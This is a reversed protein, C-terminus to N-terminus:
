VHARGIMNPLRHHRKLYDNDKIFLFDHGLIARWEEDKLILNTRQLMLLSQQSHTSKDGEDNYSYHLGRKLQWADTNKTYRPNIGDGIKGLDHFLATILLSEKDINFKLAEDIIFIWKLVKLTHLALGGEHPEHYKCSAPANFFQNGYEKLVEIIQAKRNSAYKNIFSLTSARIKKIQESNM